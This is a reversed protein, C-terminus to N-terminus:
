IILSDFIQYKQDFDISKIGILCSVKTMKLYDSACISKDVM